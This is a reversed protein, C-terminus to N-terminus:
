EWLPYSHACSGSHINFISATDRHNQLCFGEKAITICKFTTLNWASCSVQCYSLVLYQDMIIFIFQLIIPTTFIEWGLENRAWSRCYEEIRRYSSHKQMKNSAIIVRSLGKWKSIRDSSQSESLEAIRKIRHELTSELNVIINKPWTILKQIKSNSRNWHGNDAATVILPTSLTKWVPRM